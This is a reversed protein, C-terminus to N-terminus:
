KCVVDFAGKTDDVGDFVMRKSFRNNMARDLM